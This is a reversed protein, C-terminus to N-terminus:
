IGYRGRLANFNQQVEAASLARNYVQALSIGGVLIQGSIDPRGGVYVPDPSPRIGTNRSGTLNGNVYLKYGNTISHGERVLVYNYFTNVTVDGSGFADGNLSEAWIGMQANNNNMLMCMYNSSIGIYVGFIAQYQGTNVATLRFWVSQTFTAGLTLPTSVKADGSYNIIGGNNASYTPGNTLTGNNGNGSMDTWTNGSGPYSKVNAADLALVLGNTVIRPSHSLGM